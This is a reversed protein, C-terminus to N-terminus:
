SLQGRYQLWLPIRPRKTMRASPLKFYVPKWYVLNMYCHGVDGSSFRSTIFSLSLPFGIRSPGRQSNSDRSVTIVLLTKQFVVTHHIGSVQQLQLANIINLIDIWFVHISVQLIYIYEEDDFDSFVAPCLRKLLYFAWFHSKMFKQASTSLINLPFFQLRYCWLVEINELTSNEM